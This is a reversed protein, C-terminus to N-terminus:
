KGAVAPLTFYITAGEGKKGEAWAQGGHKEVIRKVIALGIGTGEFEEDGHLRQFVGFLKAAYQMDFGVGNDKVYYMNMGEGIRGGVEILAAEKARTFKVSNSLLNNFIQRVLQKDGYAAPLKKVEFQVRRGAVLPEFGAVIERALEEMDIPSPEVAKRGVNSYDLLDDIYRSIEIANKGLANLLRKGEENLSDAFDELLLRSFGNIGRLPARLVHSASYVFASLESNTAELQATYESLKENLKRQAEEAQKRETIDQVTGIMSIPEGQGDFYVQAQEHVFRESGDPQIIRHDLSYPIHNYLADDVGKQVAPRDDHHIYHLFIEYSPEFQRPMLGFIRYVEDSWRLENSAISWEWNGLRAIRQAELLEKNRREVLDELHDRHKRIEAELQKREAIERQLARFVWLLLLVSAALLIGLTLLSSSNVTAAIRQREELLDKERNALGDLQAEINATLADAVGGLMLAAAEKPGKERRIQAARDTWEMRQGVLKDLAALQEQQVPDSSALRNVEALRALMASRSRDMEALQRNDGTILFGRNHQLFHHLAASFSELTLMVEYTHEVWQNAKDKQIFNHSAASFIVILALLSIALGVALSKKRLWAMFGHSRTAALVGVALLMFGASTHAAIATTNGIHTLSLDGFMYGGLPLLAAAAVAFAFTQAIRWFRAEMLLLACSILAFNAATISSMRGPHSTFVAGGPERFLLQDIGADWGFGYEALTALGTLLVLVAAARRALLTLPPIQRLTHLHLCIGSLVFAAATNAKMSVLGPLLQQLADINWAWGALVVLGLAMTSIAATKM